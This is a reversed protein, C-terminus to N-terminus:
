MGTEFAQDSITGDFFLYTNTTNKEDVNSSEVQIKDDRIVHAYPITLITQYNIVTNRSTLLSKKEDNQRFM